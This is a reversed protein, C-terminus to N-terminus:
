HVLISWDPDVFNLFGVCPPPQVLQFWLESQKQPAWRMQKGVWCWFAPTTPSTSVIGGVWSVFATTEPHVDTASCVISCAMKWVGGESLECVFWLHM